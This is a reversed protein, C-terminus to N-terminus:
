QIAVFSPTVTSYSMSNSYNTYEEASIQQGTGSYRSGYCHFYYMEGTGANGETWISEVPTVSVGSYTNLSEESDFASSSGRRYFSAANSLYYRDRESSQFLLTPAGNVLTYAEYIMGDGYLSGILLEFVGNGDLDQLMYGLNRDLNCLYTFGFQTADAGAIVQKYKTLLSDYTESVKNVTIYASDTVIPGGLGSFSAYVRWGSLEYPINSLCLTETGLGTIQLGNFVSSAMGDQYIITGPANAIFWTIGTYNDARAVFYATGGEDVVEGTPSKTLKLYPNVTPAPTPPVTPIPTPAMTPVPTPAVTPVPTPAVTPIPTPVPTPAATPVTAPTAAADENLEDPLSHRKSGCAALSLCMVLVLFIAITRKM